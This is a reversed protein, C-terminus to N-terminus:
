AKPVQIDIGVKALLALANTTSVVGPRLRYDFTMEGDVIRDTFHVNKVKGGTEEQLTTLGLDHTAIGGVAGLEVLRRVIARSAAQREATNTGQLVEDLLFLSPRTKCLDLVKKLRELEAYFFSLGQALSDQIRMSTAVQLPSLTMSRACVPAGAQALVANVGMARLLTTKGAMNSGTVLLVTGPAGLEVDNDVRRAGPLLPHGLAEAVLRTEDDAVTPWAYGPNEFAFGALSSLAELTGVAEFWGRLRTGSRDRWRELSTAWHLDWLFLLNVPLHFLPQERAQLYALARGLRGLQVSPPTDDVRTREVLARLLPSKPELKEVAEFLREYRLLKEGPARLRGYLRAVSRATAVVLVIQIALPIAWALNPALGFESALWGLATCCPLAWAIVRWGGWSLEASGEAWGLLRSPDPKEKSLLQGEVQIAQRLDVQPALERLAEQRAPIEGAPAGARLWRVLEDEGHRTATADLRQFLSAPGFLDLDGSYPHAPDAFRAGTEPLESFRDDLRLLGRRNLEARGHARRQANMVRDHAVAAGLFLLFSGLAGGLAASPLKGAWVALGVGAAGLFTVLRANALWFSKRELLQALQTAQDLRTRYAERAASPGTPRLAPDM